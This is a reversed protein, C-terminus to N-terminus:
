QKLDCKKPGHNPIRAALGHTMVDCGGEELVNIQLSHRLILLVIKNVLHGPNHECFQHCKLYAWTTRSWRQIWWSNRCTEALTNGPCTGNLLGPEFAAWCVVPFMHAFWETPSPKFPPNNPMNPWTAANATFSSNEFSALAGTKKSRWIAMLHVHHAHVNGDEFYLQRRHNPM